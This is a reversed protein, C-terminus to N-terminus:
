DPLFDVLRKCFSNSADARRHPECNDSQKKVEIRHDPELSMTSAMAVLSSVSWGLGHGPSMRLFGASRLVLDSEGVPTAAMILQSYAYLDILDAELHVTNDELLLGDAVMTMRRRTRGPAAHDTVQIDTEGTINIIGSRSTITLGRSVNITGGSISVRKSCNSECDNIHI